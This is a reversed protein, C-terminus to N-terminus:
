WVSNLDGKKEKQNSIQSIQSIGVGTNQERLLLWDIWGIVFAVFWLKGSLLNIM